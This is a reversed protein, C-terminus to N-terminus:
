GAPAAMTVGLRGIGDIVVEVAMGAKVPAAGISTGCAILDGPNLTMDRSLGSVIQEPPLIESLLKLPAEPPLIQNNVSVCEGNLRLQAPSGASLYLDSGHKEAMLRLLREMNGAPATGSNIAAM